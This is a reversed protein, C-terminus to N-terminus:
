FDNPEDPDVCVTANGHCVLPPLCDVTLGCTEGFARGAFVTCAGQTGCVLESGCSVPQGCSGGPFHALYQSANCCAGRLAGPLAPLPACTKDVCDLGPECD